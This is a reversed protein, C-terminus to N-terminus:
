FGLQQRAEKKESNKDQRWTGSQKKAQQGETTRIRKKKNTVTLVGTPPPAKIEGSVNTTIM